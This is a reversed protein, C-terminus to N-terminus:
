IQFISRVMLRALAGGARWGFADSRVQHRALALGGQAADVLEHIHVAVGLDLEGLVDVLDGHGPGLIGEPPDGSAVLATLSIERFKM